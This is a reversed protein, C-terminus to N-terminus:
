FTLNVGITWKRLTPYNGYSGAMPNIFNDPYPNYFNILNQGTINVRASQIGIKKVWMSPITYALTLRNLQVRAASVRWFSSTVGNVSSYALNPYQAAQNASMILNGSGDYIDQYVYMNDPNWFSPMNCYELNGEPKLAQGPVTSYGGWSAGIQFNISLDKWTAGANITFGYPNNRHGLEVQDDENDVIGDPGEYEGTEANYAGRVDKYILMGPRVDDKSLGMYTGYTGDEKKMYTDFYEEIDEFDRFMGICQMGWLGNDTRSGRTLQRYIYEDEWDMLLVKNDSYGTNIGINYKFDKGIKDRWSLSLEYGWSDMEGLNTSATQTGVTSPISQIINMLMERNWERYAEFTVALRQKLFHADVGFNFKYSKDWHVDPNVASNNKNITIRNSSDNGVGTGLVIGKNADQAYVQMWQWPALNDRGTLGFSTRVKLFNVWKVKDRFWNEESIVWGASVAPFTGWYNKPAFKTSADSRLLFEFLYRDAYSYNIRGIYSLTGSESRTFQTTMEGTASNYQGTTFEYPEERQGVLYESEAESKEISFLASVDHKGFTRAYQATFNMQYNDTRTMTRYLMNGNSQTLGKFNSPALYDFEPDEMGTPTYLHNGSGYRNVMQYVTYKTGYQNGKDNNISKSYTFRLSLGKLIKSWGFDYNIHGQINMNSTMSKSYDGNNQLTAFNYNQNQNKSTNSVGYAVMDYGNISEPMYGPRTLLLNYDKEKNTGGVKVLPTNKEGYDGSVNLGANLWKSIKVDVGARYNWRDYDLKGLNGDQNFYSGGAFYSVNDTAGSINISHQQTFGTEWYKDLLDNNLHKMAELEDAQFLATTLNTSTNTPDAMTVANYLRGYDYTSLMKPRSVEDTFGFSGSYSIRPAGLKGKKTTVLIVGNAARAGYVAASADKLVSISEVESPNLNNFAEAGLNQTVNGVKVDNPYIYGDIVFLPQQATSGVDSLSNVDRISLRASEGPRSDGGSVGLGNVLGSLTSALNGSSLDQIDEMPVNAVSGTLHAKKQVGYGVVVVEDLDNYDTDLAVRGGKTNTDKYGIYSIVINADAPADVKYNGDFDTVTAIKTGEVRVTAGIVPEGNEDVVTGQVVKNQALAPLACTMALGLFLNKIYKNNM